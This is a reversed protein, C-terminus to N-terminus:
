NVSEFRVIPDRDEKLKNVVIEFIDQKVKKITKKKDKTEEVILKRRRELRAQEQAGQNAPIVKNNLANNQRSENKDAFRQQDSDKWLETEWDDSAIQTPRLKNEEPQRGLEIQKSIQAKSAVDEVIEDAQDQM